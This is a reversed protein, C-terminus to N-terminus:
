PENGWVQSGSIYIPIKVGEEYYYSSPNFSFDNNVIRFYPYICNPTTEKNPNYIYASINGVEPTPSLTPESLSMVAKYLNLRGGSVLIDELSDIPDVSNMLIDKIELNTLNMDISKLLAAAGSVYPTAMSTGDLSDYSNGPITSYITKGPAALDVGIKGYSSFSALNDNHDTAAVTLISGFPFSAPYVPSADINISRNSDIISESGLNETASITDEVRIMPYKSDTEIITITNYVDLSVSLSASYVVDEEKYNYHELASKLPPMSSYQSNTSENSYATATPIQLVFILLSLVILKCIVKTKM